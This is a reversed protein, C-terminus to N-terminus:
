DALERRANEDSPVLELYRELAAKFAARDGSAKQLTAELRWAASLKPALTRAKVACALAEPRRNLKQLTEGKQLWFREPRYSSVAIASDLAALAEDGKGLTLLVAAKRAFADDYKANAKLAEDYHKLAQASDGARLYADGLYMLTRHAKPDLERAFLLDRLEDTARNMRGYMKARRVYLDANMPDLLIAQGFSAVAEECEGMEGCIIGRWKHAALFNGDLAIAKDMWVKAVSYNDEYGYFMGIAYCAEKYAPNVKLAKMMDARALDYRKDKGNAFSWGRNYLALDFKPDIALAKEYCARAGEADNRYDGAIIGKWLWAWKTQDNLELARDLNKEAAAVDKGDLQVMALRVLAFGNKPDLEVAKTVAALARDHEGLAALIQGQLIYPEARNKELSQLYLAEAYARHATDLETKTFPRGLNLLERVSAMGQMYARMFIFDPCESEIAIAKDIFPLAVEPNNERQYLAISVQAYRDAMEHLKQKKLYWVGGKLAVSFVIGLTVVVRSTRVIRKWKEPVKEALGFIPEFHDRIERLYLAINNLRATNEAIRRDQEKDYDSQLPM